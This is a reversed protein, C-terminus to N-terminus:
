LYDLQMECSSGHFGARCDCTGQETCAGENACPLVEDYVATELIAVEEPTFLADLTYMVGNLATAGDTTAENLALTRVVASQDEAVLNIDDVMDDPSELRLCADFTGDAVGAEAIAVGVFQATTALDAEDTSYCLRAEVLESEASEIEWEPVGTRLM